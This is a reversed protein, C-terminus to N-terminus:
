GVSYALFGPGMVGLSIFNPSTTAAETSDSNSCLQQWLTIKIKLMEYCKELWDGWGETGREGLLWKGAQQSPITNRISGTLKLFSLPSAPLFDSTM